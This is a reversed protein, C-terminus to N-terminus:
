GEIYLIRIRPKNHVKRKKFFLDCTNDMAVRKPIEYHIFEDFSDTLRDHVGSRICFLDSETQEVFARHEGLKEEKYDELEKTYQTVYSSIKKNYSKVKSIKSDYKKDWKGAKLHKVCGEGGNYAYLVYDAGYKNYIDCFFNISMVMYFCYKTTIHSEDTPRYLKRFYSNALNASNLQSPGYDYTGNSNKHIYSTFNGSEHVMLCYFLMRIEKKNETYYLFADAYEQPIKDLYFSEELEVDSPETLNMFPLISAYLNMCCVAFTLTIYVLMRKFVNSKM